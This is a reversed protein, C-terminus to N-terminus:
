ATDEAASKISAIAKPMRWFIAGDKVAGIGEEVTKANVEEAIETRRRYDIDIWRLGPANAVMKRAIEKTIIEFRLWKQQDELGAWTRLERATAQDPPRESM